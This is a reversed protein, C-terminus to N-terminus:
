SYDGNVVSTKLFHEPPTARLRWPTNRCIVMV